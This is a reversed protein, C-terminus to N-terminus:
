LLTESDQVCSMATLKKAEEPWAITLLFASDELAEMVHPIARALALTHGAPLDIVKGKVHM